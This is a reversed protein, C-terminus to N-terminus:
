IKKVKKAVIIYEVPYVFKKNKNEITTFKGTISDRAYPLNRSPIERKIVDKITFGNNMLQETSVEANLIEVKRLTTNGIVICTTGNPKLVRNMERYVSNMDSFYNSVEKSLSSSTKELEITINEGIISNIITSNNKSSSNGIFDKKLESINDSFNLWLTSLQHLDAYSYSTVYPPSTIITDVTESKIGTQRADACKVNCSVEKNIKRTVDNYFRLNGKEMSNIQKIFSKFPDSPIKNLDRTPKTSKQLWISSNKLINSFGCLFFKRYNEAEIKNIEHLIKALKLKEEEKFWYDIRPNKPIWVKNLEIPTKLRLQLNEYIDHLRTPNLQKTKVGAILVAVPNIDVGISNNGRLKSEVLTTGCGGFPDLILDDKNSYDKLLTSVIQPIFKAPYRHYAHTAYTTNYKKRDSFSWNPRVELKAFDDLIKKSINM